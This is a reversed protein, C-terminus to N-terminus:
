MDGMLICVLSIDCPKTDQCDSIACPQTNPIIGKDSIGKNQLRFHCFNHM